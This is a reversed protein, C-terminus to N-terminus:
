GAVEALIGRGREVLADADPDDAFYADLAQEATLGEAMGGAVEPADVRRPRIEQVEFAGLNELMSKVHAVDISPDLDRVRVVADEVQDEAVDAEIDAGTLTVFRRAPTEVFEFSARGPEVDVVLYGKAQHEEGFDTRYPSGAYAILPDTSLVQHKHFHGALIADFGIAGLARTDVVLGQDGLFAAQTDSMLGGALAQHVVLVSSKAHGAIGIQEQTQVYLGRAITLYAEGLAAAIDADPLTEFGEVARINHRDLFPLLAIATDGVIAVDPKAYANWGFEGPAMVDGIWRGGRMGDHNGRLLFVERGTDAGVEFEELAERIMAVRWPAPHRGETLDGAVILAECGRNRADEAVWRAMTVTDVWRANLGTAPDIRTGYDDCHLDATFAIRTM